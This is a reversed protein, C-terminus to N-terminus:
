KALPEMAWPHDFDAKNVLTSVRYGELDDYPYPKMLALLQAKDCQTNDLWIAQAEEDLIVPMRHHVPLMLPNADTTILCCSHIVEEENQWTDWLAAVALLDRNRKQFFYPQKISGEQHWEYFGSMPMLCRKSKMAQRFAPKEFLTEARANILSGIKKRETTWSPILGWRLLVSQIEHADTEVLCVVEAGPAINFRPTIEISNSLHFQYKLKDYSAVYAFRGCM